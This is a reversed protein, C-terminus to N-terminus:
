GGNIQAIYQSQYDSISQAPDTVPSQPYLSDDFYDLASMSDGADDPPTSNFDFGGFNGLGDDGGFYASPAPNQNPDSLKFPFQTPGLGAGAGQRPSPFYYGLPLGTLGRCLSPAIRRLSMLLTPRRFLGLPDSLANVIGIVANLYGQVKLFTKTIDQQIQGLFKDLQAAWKIGFARLIELFKRVSSILNLIPKIYANFWRNLYDRVKQLFNIIPALKSEIWNHVKVIANWLPVLIKNYVFDWITHFFQGVAKLLGWLYQFVAGLLNYLFVFLAILENVLWQLFAVIDSGLQSLFDSLGSLWDM